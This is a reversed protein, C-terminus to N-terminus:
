DRGAELEALEATSLRIRTAALSDDVQAVTRCGVVPWVAQPQNLLWALALRNRSIGMAAARDAIRRWRRVNGASAYRGFKGEAGAPAPWTWERSFFGGAQASWAAIAVGNDRHWRRAEADAARTLGPGEAPVEALSWQIQNAVFGPWGRLRAVRQAEAMRAPSWNSAAYSGILGARRERELAELLPEVPTTPDDRHLYYLDIRALGLRDLSERLDIAICEPRVRSPADPVDLRFHAGKSAVRVRGEMGRRRVWAGVTRESAGTGRPLWAAYVHASDLHDGGLEAFRDMLRFSEDVPRASGFDATGLVLHNRMAAPSM